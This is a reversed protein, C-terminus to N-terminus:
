TTLIQTKNTCYVRLFDVRVYGFETYDLRTIKFTNIKLYIFNKVSHNTEAVLNGHEPLIHKNFNTWHTINIIKGSILMIAHHPRRPLSVKLTASVLKTCELPFCVAFKITKNVIFYIFLWIINCSCTKNVFRSIYPRVCLYM